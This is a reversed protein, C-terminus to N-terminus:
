NHDPDQLLRREEEVIARLKQRLEAEIKPLYRQLLHEILQEDAADNPPKKRTPPPFPTYPPSTFAKVMEQQLERNAKLRDRIHKPLFPNESKKELPSSSESEGAASASAESRPSSSPQHPEGNEKTSASDFLGPQEEPNVAKPLAEISPELDDADDRAPPRGRAVSIESPTDRAGDDITEQLLPIDDEALEPVPAKADRDQWAETLLPAEDDEVPDTLLPPELPKGDEELLSKISELEGLIKYRTTRKDDTPDTM